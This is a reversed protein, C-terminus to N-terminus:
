ASRVLNTKIISEMTLYIGANGMKLLKQQNQQMDNSMLEKMFKMYESKFQDNRSMKRQLYTFRKEAQLRNNPFRVNDHRLPLPIEYHGDILGTGNDLIHIFKLDEQSMGNNNRNVQHQSETFEHSYIKQLLDRFTM